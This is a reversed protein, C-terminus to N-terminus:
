ARGAPGRHRCLLQAAHCSLVPPQRPCQHAARDRESANKLKEYGDPSLFDATIYYLGQVFEDWVKQDFANAEKSEKVGQCMAERFSNDDMPTVAFGIVKFDHPLLDSCALNYLAPILKRKTLDGSAGFIIFSNTDDPRELVSNYSTPFNALAPATPTQSSNLTNM